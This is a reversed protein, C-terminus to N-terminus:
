INSTLAAFDIVYEPEMASPDSQGKLLTAELIYGGLAASTDHYCFSVAGDFIDAGMVLPVDISELWDRTSNWDDLSATVNLLMHHIGEGWRDHFERNYHSPGLTPQIIEFGFDRFLSIGVFYEHDVPAGRYYPYELLGPETRWNRVDWRSVGLLENYRALSAMVDDVVVGFHNVGQVGVPGVGDPRTYAGAHNWVESVEVSTQGDSGLPVQVEILFGGLAKRTDLFHRQMTGDVTMSAAIDLGNSKLDDRLSAFEEPSRMALTLHSIGQGRAFNFEQFPSEGSSPQVLEFTVPITPNGLSIASAADPPVTTGTATRFSPQTPRGHSSAETLRDPGFDRIEWHDIGFIEAYKMTAAHLDRVVVGVSYLRDM